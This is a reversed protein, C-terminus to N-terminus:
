NEEDFYRERFKRHWTWPDYFSDLTKNLTFDSPEKKEWWVQKKEKKVSIQTWTGMMCKHWYVYCNPFEYVKDPIFELRCNFCRIIDM